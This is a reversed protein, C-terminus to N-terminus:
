NYSAFKYFKKTKITGCPRFGHGRCHFCPAKVVPGGSFDLVKSLFIDKHSWTLSPNRLYFMCFFLHFPLLSIVTGEYFNLVKIQWFADHFVLFVFWLSHSLNAVIYYYYLLANMNPFLSLPNWLEIPFHWAIWYFFSCFVHIPMECFCFYDYIYLLISLRILLWPFVFIGWCPFIFWTSM